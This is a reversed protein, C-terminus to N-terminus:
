YYYQTLLTGVIDLDHLWQKIYPNTYSINKYRVVDEDISNLTNELLECIETIPFFYKNCFNMIDKIQQKIFIDNLNRQNKQADIFEGSLKIILTILDRSASKSNDRLKSSATLSKALKVLEKAIKVNQKMGDDEGEKKMDELM